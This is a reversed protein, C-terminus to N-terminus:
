GHRGGGPSRHGPRSARTGPRHGGRGAAGSGSPTRSGRELARELLPCSPRGRGGAVFMVYRFGFRQEYAENLPRAGRHGGAARPRLGAGPVLAGLRDGPARRHASASGAAGGPSGHLRCPSRRPGSSCSRGPQRVAARGPSCGSTVRAGEFLPGVAGPVATRAGPRAHGDVAAVSRDAAGTAPSASPLSSCRCTIRARDRRGRRVRADGRRFFGHRWQHLEFTLRYVGVVLARWSRGSAGTRTPSARAWWANHAGDDLIVALRVPVGQAPRGLGPTSSMPRSPPVTHGM